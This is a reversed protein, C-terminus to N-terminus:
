DLKVKANGERRKVKLKPKPTMNSIFSAMVALEVARSHKRM